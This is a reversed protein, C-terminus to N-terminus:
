RKQKDKETDLTKYLNNTLYELYANFDQTQEDLIGIILYRLYDNLNKDIAEKKVNVYYNNMANIYNFLLINFKNIDPIGIIIPEKTLDKSIILEVYNNGKTYLDVHYEEKLANIFLEIMNYGKKDDIYM